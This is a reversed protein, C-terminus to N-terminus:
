TKKLDTWVNEHRKFDFQLLSKASVSLILAILPAFLSHNEPTFNKARVKFYILLVTNLCFNAKESTTKNNKHTLKVEIKVTKAIKRITNKELHNEWGM